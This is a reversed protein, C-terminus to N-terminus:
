WGIRADSRMRAPMPPAEATDGDVVALAALDAVDSRVDHVIALPGVRGDEGGALWNTLVIVFLDREPDIWISTGTFGTHGFATPGLLRGCSGGGACTEWGLAQRDGDVARRTFLAVTSDRVIRVGRHTGRALMFQAFTALDSASAFLGAHGAVDGLAHASRDHVEGRPVGRETPAIRGALTRAPRFTTARMGLPQHVARRVFRDLPEGTVREVVLGLLIPGLDSYEFREGPAAALPTRLVLRRSEAASGSSLARGPPLGSRHTLLHRITVRAKPGTRFEPLWRGVPDDLGVRGRDVLVMVAASTAVVKTLSALDYMTRAPDVTGAGRGLSGYGREWVIAGHRGVVVAAGPFGGADIASTVVRDIVALREASMGVDAPALRPLADDRAITDRRTVSSPSALLSAALAAASLVLPFSPPV